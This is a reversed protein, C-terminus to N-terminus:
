VGSTNFMDSYILEIARDISGKKPGQWQDRDPRAPSMGSLDRTPLCPTATLSLAPTTGWQLSYIAFTAFDLM